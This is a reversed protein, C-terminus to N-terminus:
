ILNDLRERVGLSLQKIYMHINFMRSIIQAEEKIMIHM